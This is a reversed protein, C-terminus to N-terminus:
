YLLLWNILYFGQSIDEQIFFVGGGGTNKVM